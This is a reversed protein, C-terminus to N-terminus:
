HNLLQSDGRWSEASSWCIVPTVTMNMYEPLGLSQRGSWDFGDNLGAVGRQRRCDEARPELQLPIIRVLAPPAELANRRSWDESVKAL